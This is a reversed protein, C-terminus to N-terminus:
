IPCYGESLENFIIKGYSLETLAKVAEEYSDKKVRLKFSVSEAYENSLLLIDKDKILRQIPNILDYGAVAEFDVCYEVSQITSASLASRVAESYARVLGGTGLLVGGFYRTVVAVINTIDAGTLVELMPKGATGSPEGDDSSRTLEKEPGLIICSCNHRADYHKKKVSAIFAAAEEESTVPKLYCIFKSKKEEYEGKAPASIVKYPKCENINM